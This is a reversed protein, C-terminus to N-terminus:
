FFCAYFRVARKNPLSANVRTLPSTNGCLSGASDKDFVRDSQLVPKTTEPLQCKATMLESVEEKLDEVTEGTEKNCSLSM